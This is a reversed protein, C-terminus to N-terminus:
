SKLNNVTASPQVESFSFSYYTACSLLASPVSDSNTKEATKANQIHVPVQPMFAELHQHYVAFVHFAASGLLNWHSLFLFGWYGGGLVEYIVQWGGAPHPYVLVPCTQPERPQAETGEGGARPVSPRNGQSFEM